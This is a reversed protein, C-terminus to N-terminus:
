PSHVPFESQLHHCEATNEVHLRREIAGKDKETCTCYNAVFSIAPYTEERYKSSVLLFSSSVRSGRSISSEFSRSHIKPAGFDAKSGRM